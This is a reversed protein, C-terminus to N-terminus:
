SAPNGQEATFHCRAARRALLRILDVLRPDPLRDAQTAWTLDLQHPATARPPKPITEQPMIPLAQTQIPIVCSM